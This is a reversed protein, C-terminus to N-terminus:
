PEVIAMVGLIVGILVAGSLVLALALLASLGVLLWRMRWMSERSRHLENMPGAESM